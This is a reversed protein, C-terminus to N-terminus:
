GRRCTASAASVTTTRELRDLAAEIRENAAKRPVDYLDAFFRLYSLPTM